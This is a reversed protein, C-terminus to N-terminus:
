PLRQARPESPQAQRLAIIPKAVFDHLLVDTIATRGLLANMKTVVKERVEEDQLEARLHLQRGAVLGEVVGRLQEVEEPTLESLHHSCGILHAQLQIEWSDVTTKIGSEALQFGSPDCAGDLGSPLQDSPHVTFGVKDCSTAVLCVLVTLIVWTYRGGRALIPNSQASM